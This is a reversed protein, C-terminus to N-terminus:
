CPRPLQLIFKTNDIMLAYDLNGSAHDRKNGDSQYRYLRHWFGGDDSWVMCVLVNKMVGDM